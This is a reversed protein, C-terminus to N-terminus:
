EKKDELLKQVSDPLATLSAASAHITEHREQPRQRLNPNSSTSEKYFLKKVLNSRDDTRGEQQREDEDQILSADGEESDDEFLKANKRQNNM